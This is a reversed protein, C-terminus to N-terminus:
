RAPAILAEGIQLRQRAKCRTGFLIIGGVDVQNWTSIHLSVKEIQPFCGRLQVVSDVRSRLM